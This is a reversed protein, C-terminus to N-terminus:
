FARIARVNYILNQRSIVQLGNLFTEALVMGSSYETSSWYYSSSFNGIGAAKLNAYMLYLEAQSPLYWDNYGNLVLQNCVSAAYLGSGQTAIINQTNLLGTGIVAQTAKPMLSAGSFSYNGQDVMAALLGHQGTNDIYFVIGGAYSEGIRHGVTTFIVPNSYVTGLSNVAKIRFQYTANTLLPQATTYVNTYAIGTLPINPISTLTINFSSATYLGIVTVIGYEFTVTTPLYNANVSGTLTATILQNALSPTSIINGNSVMVNTITPPGGFPPPVIQPLAIPFAKFPNTASSKTTPIFGANNISSANYATAGTTSQGPVIEDNSKNCGTIFLFLIVPGIFPNLYKMKKM